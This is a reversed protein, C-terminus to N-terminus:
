KVIWGIFQFSQWFRTVSTFGANYFMEINEKETLLKMITRISKQKELLEEASFSKEKYDYYSFTFMEQTDGSEMYTKETVIMVVNPNKQKIIKLLEARKEKRLFQLTFMLIIIDAQPIFKTVDKKIYTVKDHPIFLNDALDVGVFSVNSIKEAMKILLAGTSCGLDQIVGGRGILHHTLSVVMDSLETYNPISKDIHTDFDKIKNFDFDSM